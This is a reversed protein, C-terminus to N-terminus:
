AVQAQRAISALPDPTSAQGTKTLTAKNPNTGSFTVGGSLDLEPTTISPAGSSLISTSSTSDVIVSGNQATM